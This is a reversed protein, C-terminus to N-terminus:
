GQEQQVVVDLKEATEVALCRLPKSVDGRVGLLHAQVGQHTLYAKLAEVQERSVSVQDYVLVYTRGPELQLTGLDVQQIMTILKDPDM